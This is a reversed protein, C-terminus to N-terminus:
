RLLDDVAFRWGPVAPEADATEGRRYVTPQGRNNARYAHIAHEHLVDVDWVVQTGAAFYDARKAAMRLEAEEGYEAPDRIEAAFVPPGPLFGTAEPDGTYWSVDPCFSLRHPLDVIFAIRSGLAYGTGMAKEYRYLSERIQWAAKASGFVTPGIVILQGDVIEAKLKTLHLDAVTAPRGLPIAVHEGIGFRWIGVQLEGMLTLEAAEM